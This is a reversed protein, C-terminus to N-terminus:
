YSRRIGYTNYGNDGSEETYDADEYFDNIDIRRICDKCLVSAYNKCCEDGRTLNLERYQQLEKLWDAIQDLDNRDICNGDACMMIAEDIKM